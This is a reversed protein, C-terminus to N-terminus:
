KRLTLAFSPMKCSVQELVALGKSNGTDVHCKVRMGNLTVPIIIHGDHSTFSLQTMPAVNDMAYLDANGLKGLAELYKIRRKLGEGERENLSNASKALHQLVDLAAQRQNIARNPILLVSIGLLLIGSFGVKRKV